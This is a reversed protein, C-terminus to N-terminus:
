QVGGTESAGGHAILFADVPEPDWRVSRGFRLPKPFNPTKSWRWWTSRSVQYKACLQAATAHAGPVPLNPADTNSDAIKAMTSRELFQFFRPSRETIGGAGSFLDIPSLGDSFASSCTCGTNRLRGEPLVTRGYYRNPEKLRVPVWLSATEFAEGRPATHQGTQYASSTPADKGFLGRRRLRRPKEKDACKDPTIAHYGDVEHRQLVYLVFGLSWHEYGTLGRPVGHFGALGGSGEHAGLFYDSGNTQNIAKLTSDSSFTERTLAPRLNGVKGKM